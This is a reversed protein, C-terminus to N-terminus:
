GKDNNEEVILPRKADYDVRRHHISPLVEAITRKITAIDGMTIPCEDFQRLEIKEDVLRNLKQEFEEKTEPMYARMAAEITDAIMIIAAIKTQPKPGAYTFRNVALEGDEKLSLAKRYFYGVPSTGHHQRCVDIIEKPLRNQRALIEGFLTHSTIMSVSVEPILDDHPNYNSQNESFYMPAKLKGIDHYYAACRALNPNEGIASACAEALNGVVLSHNFTGPAESALRKLLPNSLNCLENLRFDDVINFVGEFIAVLPLFLLTSILNSGFSGISNWLIDLSVGSEAITFIVVLPIVVLPTFASLLLFKLRAYRKYAFFNVVLGSLCSAIIACVIVSMDYKEEADPFLFSLVLLIGIIAMSFTAARRGVLEILILTSLMIYIAYENFYVIGVMSGMFSLTVMIASLYYSRAMNGKKLSFYYIGVFLAGMLVIAAVFKLSTALTMQTFAREFNGTLFLAFVMMGVPAILIAPVCSWFCNLFKKRRLIKEKEIASIENVDNIM